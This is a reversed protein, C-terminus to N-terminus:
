PEFKLLGKLDAFPIIVETPGEAYAAIEYSDYHLVMGSEQFGFTEPLAFKDDEFNYGSASLSADPSLGNEQRFQSEVISTLREIDSVFDSLSGENINENVINIYSVFSNPHAGGTYSNTTVELSILFKNLYSQNIDIDLTWPTNSEPFSAKFEEYSALFLDILENITENGKADMVYDESLIQTIRQKVIKNLSLAMDSDGDFNPYSINVQTCPEAKCKASKEEIEVKQSSLEEVEPM